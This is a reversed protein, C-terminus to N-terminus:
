LEDEEDIEEPVEVARRRRGAPRQNNAGVLQHKARLSLLVENEVPRTTELKRGAKIKARVAKFCEVGEDNWGGWTSQGQKSSIFKTQMSKHNRDVDKNKSKQDAMYLWKNYCNHFLTVFLAESGATINKTEEDELKAERITDYHCHCPAWYNNGM